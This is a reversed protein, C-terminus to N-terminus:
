QQSQVLLHKWFAESSFWCTSENNRRFININEIEINWVGLWAMWSNFVNNVSTLDPRKTFIELIFKNSSTTRTDKCNVKFMNRAKKRTNRNNVKFLYINALNIPRSLTLVYYHHEIPIKFLYTEKRLSKARSFNKTAM